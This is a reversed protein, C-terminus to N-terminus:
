APGSGEVVRAVAIMKDSDSTFEDLEYSGYVAEMQYGARLMLLELEGRFIYRLSYPFLTRRLRGEDDVEDLFVTNHVFQEALDVRQTKFKMLRRGTEPDTMVKELVVQGQSDLLRDPHPNFLDLVLLGNTSLHQRIRLLAILQDEVTMLHMFSNIAAFALNYCGVLDLERMDQKALKVRDRLGELAVKQRAIELMAESVDVGTVEYGAAALPVLLRGTGCGLELIPSGCRLALQQILQGDAYCDAYDLDYFPAYSDFLDM